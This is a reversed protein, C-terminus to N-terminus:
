PLPVVKSTAMYRVTVEKTGVPALWAYPREQPGIFGLFDAVITGQGDPLPMVVPEGRLTKGGALPASFEGSSQYLAGYAEGDSEFVQAYRGDPLWACVSWEGITDWRVAYDLLALRRLDQEPSPARDPAWRARSPTDTACQRSSWGNGPHHVYPTNPRQDGMARLPERTFDDPAPPSDGRVFVPRGSQAASVVAVGGPGTEARQWTRTLRNGPGRVPNVSWFVQSGLGLVVHTSREKGLQFLGVEQGYDVERQVVNGEFVIGVVTHVEPAGNLRVAQAVLAAPGSPTNAAWFVNAPATSGTPHETWSWAQREGNNWTALAQSVFDSDDALDGTPAATLRADDPGPPEVPHRMVVVGTAVGALLAVAATMTVLKRTHRRRAGHMVDGVFGPRVDLDETAAEMAQKLEM